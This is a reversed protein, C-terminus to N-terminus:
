QAPPAVYRTGANKTQFTAGGTVIGSLVAVLLGQWTWHGENAVLYAVVVSLVALAAAVQAKRAASSFPSPSKPTPSTM